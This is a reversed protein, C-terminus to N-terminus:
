AHKRRVDAVFALARQAIQLGTEGGPPPNVAPDELWRAHEEPWRARIEDELLGEWVGYAIEELGSAIAVSRQAARALPEATQRARQLPSSYIAEWKRDHHFDAFAQAMELGEPALPVDSGSGCFRYERSWATQGHRVLYLTLM